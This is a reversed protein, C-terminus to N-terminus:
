KHTKVYARMPEKIYESANKWTIDDFKWLGSNDKVLKLGVPTLEGSNVVKVTAEAKRDSEFDINDVTVQLEYIDQGCYFLDWDLFEMMLDPDLLHFSNWVGKLDDSMLDPRRIDGKIGLENFRDLMTSSYVRETEATLTPDYYAKYILTMIARTDDASVAVTEQGVAPLEEAAIVNCTTDNGAEGTASSKSKSSSGCATMMAVAFLVSFHLVIKKM